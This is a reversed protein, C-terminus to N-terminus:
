GGAPAAKSTPSRARYRDRIWRMGPQEVLLTLGHALGMSLAMTLAIALHVEVGWAELRRLVAWGINEHLLYLTYSIAGLWLLVPHQLWTWRGRAAGFLVAYFVAALVALGGGEVLGIVLMAAAALV